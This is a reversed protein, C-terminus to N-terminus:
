SCRIIESAKTDGVFATVDANKTTVHNKIAPLQSVYEYAKTFNTGKLIDIEKLNQLIEEVKIIKDLNKDNLSFQPLAHYRIQPNLSSRDNKFKNLFQRFSMDFQKKGLSVERMLVVYSSIARKYPDRVIKFKYYSKYKKNQQSYQGHNKYHKIRYDHIWPYKTIVTDYIGMNKLFLSVSLSCAARATWFMIIKNKNDILAEKDSM